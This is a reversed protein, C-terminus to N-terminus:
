TGTNHPLSVTIFGKSVMKESAGFGEIIRNGLYCLLTRGHIDVWRGSLVQTPMESSALLNTIHQFKDKEKKIVSADLQDLNLDTQFVPSSNLFGQCRKKVGQLLKKQRSRVSRSSTTSGGIDNTLTSIIPRPVAQGDM